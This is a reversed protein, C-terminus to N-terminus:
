RGLGGTISDTPFINNNKSRVRLNFDGIVEISTCQVRLTSFEHLM